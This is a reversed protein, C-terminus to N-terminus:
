GFTLSFAEIGRDLFEIEFLRDSIPHHQRVLQFLRQETVSGNGQADADAGRADAPPQGDITLRFRVTTGQRAPGMVLNLDRAHFRYAIRGNPKNLVIADRRTSWDGSHTWHNLRLPGSRDKNETRESGLYNEPSMLNEWDPPAEAGRGEVKVLDRGINPVGAEMLLDQIM